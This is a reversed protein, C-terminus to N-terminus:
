RESRLKTLVKTEITVPLEHPFKEATPQRKLGPRGRKIAIGPLYPFAGEADAGAGKM